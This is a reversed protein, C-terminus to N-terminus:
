TRSDAQTIGHTGDCDLSEGPAPTVPACDVTTV